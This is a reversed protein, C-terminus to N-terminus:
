MRSVRTDAGDTSPILRRETGPFDSSHSAENEAPIYAPYSSDTLPLIFWGSAFSSIFRRRSLRRISLGRGSRNAKEKRLSSIRFHILPEEKVTTTKHQYNDM